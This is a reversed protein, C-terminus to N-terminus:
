FKLTLFIATPAAFQFRTQQQPTGISFTGSVDNTVSKFYYSVETGILLKDNIIYSLAARPGVGWGNNETITKTNGGFGNTSTENKQREILVDIGTTLLLKKGFASKKEWGMRVFLDNIKTERRTLADGDAIESFTYGLGINFGLGNKTSNVAYNLLYPNNIGTSSNSFNFVQRILQNVQVGVYHSSRKSEEQASVSIVFLALFVSLPIKRIM